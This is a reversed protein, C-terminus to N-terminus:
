KEMYGKVYFIVGIIMFIPIYINALLGPFQPNTPSSGTHSASMMQGIWSFYALGREIAYIFGSAVIFM